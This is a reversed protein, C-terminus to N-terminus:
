IRRLKADVLEDGLEEPSRESVDKFLQRPRAFFGM